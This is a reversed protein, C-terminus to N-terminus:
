DNIKTNSWNEDRWDIRLNKFIIIKFYRKTYDKSLIM